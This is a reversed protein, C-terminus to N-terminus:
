WRRMARMSGPSRGARARREGPELVSWPEAVWGALHAAYTALPASSLDGIVLVRRAAGLLSAAAACRDAAGGLAQAAIAELAAVVHRTLLPAADEEAERRLRRARAAVAGQEEALAARCSERLAEYSEFGLARALRSFTAPSREALAAVSRLSRSAIELPHAAAFAAAEQLGPSLTAARAAIRRALATETM